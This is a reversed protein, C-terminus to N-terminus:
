KGLSGMFNTNVQSVIMGRMSIIGNGVIHANIFCIGAMMIAVPVNTGM